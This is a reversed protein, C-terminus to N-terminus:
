DWRASIFLLALHNDDPGGRKRTCKCLACVELYCVGPFKKYASRSRPAALFKIARKAGMVALEKESRLTSILALNISLKHSSAPSDCTLKRVQSPRSIELV